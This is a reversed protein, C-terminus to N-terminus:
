RVDGGCKCHGRRHRDIANRDLMKGYAGKIADAITSTTVRDIGDTTLVRKLSEAEESALSRILTGVTCKPGASVRPLTALVQELKTQM